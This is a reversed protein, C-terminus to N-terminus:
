KNHHKPCCKTGLFKVRNRVTVARKKTSLDLYGIMETGQVVEAQLVIVPIMKNTKHHKVLAYQPLTINIPTSKKKGNLYAFVANRKDVDAKTAVRGKIFGSSPLEPWSFKAKKTVKGTNGYGLSSFLFLFGFIFTALSQKKQM